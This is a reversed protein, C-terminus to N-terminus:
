TTSDFLSERYATFNIETRTPDNLPVDQSNVTNDKRLTVRQQDFRSFKLRQDCYKKLELYLHFTFTCLFLLLTVTVSVCTYTVRTEISDTSLFTVCVMVLNFLYAAELLCNYVSKYMDMVMTILISCVAIIVNLHVDSLFYRSTLFIFLRAIVTVGIWYYRKDKLSRYYADIFNLPKVKNIRHVISYGKRIKKFVPLVTLLATYPLLLILLVLIAVVFLFSHQLGFYEVNGDESWVM